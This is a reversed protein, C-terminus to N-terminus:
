PPPTTPKNPKTETPPKSNNGPINLQLPKFENFFGFGVFGVFM